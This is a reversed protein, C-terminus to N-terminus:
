NQIKDTLSDIKLLSQEAQSIGNVIQGQINNIQQVLNQFQMAAMPDSQGLMQAFQQLQTEIFDLQQATMKTNALVTKGAVVEADIQDGTRAARMGTGFGLGSLM